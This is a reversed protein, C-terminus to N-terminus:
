TEAPIDGHALGEPVGGDHRRSPKVGTAGQGPEDSHQTNSHEKGEVLVDRQTAVGDLVDVAAVTNDQAQGATGGGYIIDITLSNM